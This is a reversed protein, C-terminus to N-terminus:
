RAHISAAQAAGEPSDPVVEVPVLLSALGVDDVPVVPVVPVRGAGRRDSRGTRGAIRGGARGVIARAEIVELREPGV